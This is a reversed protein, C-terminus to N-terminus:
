RSVRGRGNRGVGLAEFLRQLGGYTMIGIVLGAVLDSLFDAGVLLQSALALVAVLGVTPRFDPVIMWLSSAVAGVGAGYESPFTSLDPSGAFYHFGYTGANFLEDPGSRGLVVRLITACLVSFAISLGLLLARNAHARKNTETMAYQHVLALILIACAPFTIVILMKAGQVINPAVSSKVLQALPKDLTLIFSSCVISAAVVM